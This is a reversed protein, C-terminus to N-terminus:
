DDDVALEVRIDQRRYLCRGKVGECVYYLAYGPITTTTNASEPSRIEFEVHRPEDSVESPPNAVEMRRRDVAWGDPPELWVVLGGLENNWHADGSVNPSRCSGSSGVCVHYM